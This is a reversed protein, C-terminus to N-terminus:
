PHEEVPPFGAADLRKDLHDKLDGLGGATHIDLMHFLREFVVKTGMVALSSAYAALLSLCLNLLWTSPDLAAVGLVPLIVQNLLLESVWMVSLLAVFTPTGQWDAFWMAFRAFGRRRASPHDADPHQLRM